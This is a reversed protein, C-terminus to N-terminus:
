GEVAKAYRVEGEDIYLGTEHERGNRVWQRAYSPSVYTYSVLPYANLGELESQSRCEVLTHRASRKRIAYIM